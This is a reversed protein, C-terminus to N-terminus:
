SIDVSGDVMGKAQHVMRAPEVIMSLTHLVNGARFTMTQLRFEPPKDPEVVVVVVIRISKRCEVIQLVFATIDNASM